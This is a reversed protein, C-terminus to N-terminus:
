EIVKKWISMYSIKEKIGIHYVIQYYKNLIIRLLKWVKNCDRYEIFFPEFHDIIHIRKMYLHVDSCYDYVDFSFFRNLSEPTYPKVHDFDHYFRNNLYPSFIIFIGNDKLKLSLDSFLVQLQVHDLHEIVHSLIIIDFSQGPYCENFEDPTLSVIGKDTNENVIRINIDVAVYNKCDALHYHQTGSGYNCILLEKLRSQSQVKDISHAVISQIYKRIAFLVYRSEDKQRYSKLNKM